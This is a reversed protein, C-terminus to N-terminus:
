KGIYLKTYSINNANYIDKLLVAEETYMISNNHCCVSHIGARSLELVKEERLTDAIFIESMQLAIEACSKDEAYSVMTSVASKSFGDQVDLYANRIEGNSLQYYRNKDLANMPFGRLNVISRAGSYEMTAIQYVNEDVIDFLNFSYAQGSDDLNRVFGDYSSISGKTYGKALMVDALYDTIFANKMWAFDIFDTIYNEQAYQLYADSVYLIVKNDGLLRLEVSEADSAFAAVAKYEEAVEPNTYPDFDVIQSDDTCVFIDDYQVWVPALYLYRNEMVQLQEFAQYLVPDVVIEENPHRNMYYVNNVGEFSQRSHFLEYAQECAETYVMILAKHEATASVGSVGLQYLFVFDQACNADGRSDAEIEQWGPEKSLLANMGYGIATLGIALLLVVLIVRPGVNKESLEVKEVKPVYPTQKERATRGM